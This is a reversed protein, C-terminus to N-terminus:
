LGMNGAGSLQAGSFGLLWILFVPVGIMCCIM